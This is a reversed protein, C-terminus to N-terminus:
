ELMAECLRDVMLPVLKHTVAHYLIDYRSEGFIDNERRNVIVSVKM